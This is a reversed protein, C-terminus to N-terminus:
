RLTSAKNNGPYFVVVPRGLLQALFWPDGTFDPAMFDSSMFDPPMFDPSVYNRHGYITSGNLYLPTSNTVFLPYYWETPALVPYLQNNDVQYGRPIGGWSWLDNRESSSVPKDGYQELWTKGFEEGVSQMQAFSTTQSCLALTLILFRFTM